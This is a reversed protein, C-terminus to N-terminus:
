VNTHLLIDYRIVSKVGMEGKGQLLSTPILTAYKTLCVNAATVSANKGTTHYGSCNKFIKNQSMFVCHCLSALSETPSTFEYNWTQLWKM